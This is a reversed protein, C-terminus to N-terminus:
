IAKLIRVVQNRVFWTGKRTRIGEDQLAQVIERESYGKTKLAKMRAIAALEEPHEVMAGDIVHYGYAPRGGIREGRERKRQLAQRTLGRHGLKTHVLHIKGHCVSCLTLLNTEKNKGQLCRPVM